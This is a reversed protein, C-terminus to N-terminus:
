LAAKARSTAKTIAKCLLTIGVRRRYAASAHIDSSPDADEAAENAAEDLSEVTPSQGLLMRELALARTPRGGWGAVAAAVHELRQGEPDWTVTAAVAIIAFDGPRRSLEEFAVGSRQRVAPFRVECLVADDNLGTTFPSVFFDGARLTQRGLQGLVVFEADLAVAVTPLEAVPDAHAMSGGVTGRNRIQPHGIHPIAEALLPCKTAITTSREISRQRTAAGIELWESGDRIYTLETAEGIDVLLDPRALRMNMLPILSPGGAIIKAGEGHERLM